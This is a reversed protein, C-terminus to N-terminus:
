APGCRVREALKSSLPRVQSRFLREIASTRRMPVVVGDRVITGRVTNTEKKRAKQGRESGFSGRALSAEASSNREILFLGWLSNPSLCLAQGVVVRGIPWSLEQRSM